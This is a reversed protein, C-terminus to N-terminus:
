FFSQSAIKKGRSFTIAVCNNKRLVGWRCYKNHIKNLYSGSVKGRYRRWFACNNIIDIIGNIFDMECYTNNRIYNINKPPELYDVLINMLFPINITPQGNILEIFRNNYKRYIYNCIKRYKRGSYNKVVYINIDRLM